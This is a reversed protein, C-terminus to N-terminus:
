FSIKTTLFFNAAYETLKSSNEDIIIVLNNHHLFPAYSNSLLKCTRESHTGLVVRDTKMYVYLEVGERLFELKRIVDYGGPCCAALATKVKTATDVLLTSKNVIM